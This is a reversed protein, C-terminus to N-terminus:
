LGASASQRARFDTNTIKKLSVVNELANESLGGSSVRSHYSPQLLKGFGRLCCLLDTELQIPLLHVGLLYIDIKILKRRFAM